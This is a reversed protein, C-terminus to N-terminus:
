APIGKATGAILQQVPRPRETGDAVRTLGARRAAIWAQPDDPDADPAEDFARALRDARIRHVEARIDYPVIRERTRKWLNRVAELADELRVDDLAAAWAEADVTSITRQSVAAEFTLLRAAESPIV